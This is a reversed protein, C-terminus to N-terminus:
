ERLEVVEIADWQVLVTGDAKRALLDSEEADIEFRCPVDFEFAAELVSAGPPSAWTIVGTEYDVTYGVDETQLAGDKWVSLSGDTPRTIKRQYEFDIDDGYAKYLQSTTSTLAVLASDERASECDKWDKFRFGHLRGRAMYLFAVLDEYDDGLKTHAFKWRGRARSWDQSRQEFGARTTAITTQFRAAGGSMNRSVDEPFRRSTIFGM